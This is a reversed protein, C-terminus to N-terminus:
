QFVIPIVTVTMAFLYAIFFQEDDLLKSVVRIFMKTVTRRSKKELHM